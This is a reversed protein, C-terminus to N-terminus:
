RMSLAGLRGKQAQSEKEMFPLPQAVKQLFGHWVTLFMQLWLAMLGGHPPVKRSEATVAPICRSVRQGQTIESAELLHILSKSGM